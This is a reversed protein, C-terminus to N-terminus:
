IWNGAPPEKCLEWTNRKDFQETLPSVENELHSSSGSHFLHNPIVIGARRGGNGDLSGAADWVTPAGGDFTWAKLERSFRYDTDSHRKRENRRELLRPGWFRAIPKKSVPSPTRRIWMSDAFGLSEYDTSTARRPIAEESSSIPIRPHGLRMAARTSLPSSLQAIHRELVSGTTTMYAGPEPHGAPDSTPSSPPSHEYDSLSGSEGSKTDKTALMVMSPASSVVTRAMGIAINDEGFEGDDVYQALSPTLSPCNSKLSSYSSHRSAARPPEPLPRHSAAALLSDQIDMSPQPTPLTSDTIPLMQPANKLAPMAGGQRSESTVHAPGDFASIHLPEVGFTFGSKRFDTDEMNPSNTPSKERPSEAISVGSDIRPLSWQSESRPILSLQVLHKMSRYHFCFTAYPSDKPDVLLWDYFTADQPNEVLGGSPSTIGYRDQGRFEPLKPARRKRGKSRFIQVEILGGDEAASRKDLGAMFHFYRTEIGVEQAGSGLDKDQSQRGPEYLARVVTGRTPREPNGDKDPKMSIGWSTVPRGNMLMKFYLHSAPSPVRLVSYKLWFQEGPMSPVYVSIRPQVKKQRTPDDGDTLIVSASDPHPYEPLKKAEASAVISVDIGRFIPM